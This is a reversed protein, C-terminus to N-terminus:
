QEGVRVEAVAADPVSEKQLELEALWRLLLRKLFDFAPDDGHLEPDQELRWLASCLASVVLKKAAGRMPLVIRAPM